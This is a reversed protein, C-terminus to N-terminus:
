KAAKVAVVKAANGAFDKDTTEIVFKSTVLEASKLTKSSLRLEGDKEVKQTTINYGVVKPDDKCVLVMCNTADAVVFCQDGAKIGADKMFRTPIMLRERYDTAFTGDDNAGGSDTTAGDNAASISLTPAPCVAVSAPSYTASRNHSSIVNQNRPQYGNPDVNDPHYVFAWGGGPMDKQTKRWKAVTGNLMQHGFDMADNLSVMEHVAGRVDQHRLMMKERTRTEITVDYGTFMRGQDLFDKVTAEMKDMIDQPVTCM